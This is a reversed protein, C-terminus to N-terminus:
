LLRAERAIRHQLVDSQGRGGGALQILRKAIRVGDLPKPASCCRRPGRQFARNRRSATAVPGGAFTVKVWSYRDSLRPLPATALQGMQTMRRCCCMRRLYLTSETHTATRSGPAVGGARGPM